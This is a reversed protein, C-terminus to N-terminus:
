KIDARMSVTTIQRGVVCQFKDKSNFIVGKFNGEINVVSSRGRSKAEDQLGRLAKAFTVYCSRRFGSDESLDYNKDTPNLDELSRDKHKATSSKIHTAILDGDTYTKSFEFTVDNLIENKVIDSNLADKISHEYYVDKAALACFSFVLLFVIKKM